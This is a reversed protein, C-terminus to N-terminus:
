PWYGWRRGLPRHRPDEAMTMPRVPVSELPKRLPRLSTWVVPSSLKTLSSSLRSSGNWLCLPRMVPLGHGNTRGTDDNSYAGKDDGDHKSEDMTLLWMETYTLYSMGTQTRLGDLRM